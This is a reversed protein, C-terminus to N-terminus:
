RVPDSLRFARSFRKQRKSNTSDQEDAQATWGMEDGIQLLQTDVPQDAVMWFVGNKYEDRYLTRTNSRLSHRVWVASVKLASRRGSRLADTRM